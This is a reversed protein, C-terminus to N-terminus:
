DLTGGVAEIDTDNLIITTIALHLGEVIKELPLATTKGQHTEYPVHIFGGKINLNNTHIYHMLGYMVHNCVFTGASNSVTAPIGADQIAKVMAKIPLNTFYANMGEKFIPQDIPQNGENDPILADDINIAIREPTIGARGGAQGISVVWNPTHTEIENYLTTIASHYATPLQLKIVRVGEIFDPLNKVAEISPNISEGNFPEFGTVLIKKM